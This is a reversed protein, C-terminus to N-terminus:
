KKRIVYIVSSCRKANFLAKINSILGVWAAQIFRDKGHRYKESLMSVYFSDFWMTKVAEVAFGKEKLLIEMSKPSFHYLHRPVDYAAWYQKYYGADYSTYNPVAIILRGVPKLIKFFKELYGHLDHVHELVHWLTIADFTENHMSALSSLEELHLKYNNVANIRATEDPELGTVNWGAQQMTFAFAGTGAGVDLLVGHKLGTVEKLLNLKSTLTFTRVQHYLRNVLGKKTDSHSIYDASQYYIGVSAEDPANQTFRFTCSNCQWIEFNENSVTYDKCDFVKSIAASGCCLCHDYNIKSAM